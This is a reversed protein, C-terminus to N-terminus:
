VIARPITACTGCKEKLSAVRSESLKARQAASNREQQIDDKEQLAHALRKDVGILRATQASLQILKEKAEKMEALVKHHAVDVVENNM